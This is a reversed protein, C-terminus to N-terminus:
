RGKGEINGSLSTNFGYRGGEKRREDQEENNHEVWVHLRESLYTGMGQSAGVADHHNEGWFMRNKVPILNYPRSTQKKKQENESGM